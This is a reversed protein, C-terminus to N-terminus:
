YDVGKYHGIVVVWFVRAIACSHALFFELMMAAHYAHALKMNQENFIVFVDENSETKTGKTFTNIQHSKIKANM